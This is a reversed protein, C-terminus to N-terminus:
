DGKSNITHSLSGNTLRDKCWNRSRTEEESNNKKGNQSSRPFGSVVMHNTKANLEHVHYPVKERQEIQVREWKTKREDEKRRETGQESVEIQLFQKNTPIECLKM